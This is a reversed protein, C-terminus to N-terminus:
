NYLNKLNIRDKKCTSPDYGVLKSGSANTYYVYGPKTSFLYGYKDPVRNWGKKRLKAEKKLYKPCPNTYLKRKIIM